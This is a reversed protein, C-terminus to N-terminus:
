PVVDVRSGPNFVAIEPHPVSLDICEYAAEAVADGPAIMISDYPIYGGEGIVSMGPEILRGHIKVAPPDDQWTAGAPWVVTARNLYLCGTSEDFELTGRVISDMGGSDEDPPPSTLVPGYGPTVSVLQGTHKDVVVRNGLPESLRVGVRRMCAEPPGSLRTGLADFSVYLKVQIDVETETLVSFNPTGECSNVILSLKDREILQAEEVSVWSRWAAGGVQYWVMFCAVFVVLGSVVAAVIAAVIPRGLLGSLFRRSDNGNAM